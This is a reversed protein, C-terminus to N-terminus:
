SSGSFLPRPFRLLRQAWGTASPSVPPCTLQRVRSEFVTVHSYRSRLTSDALAVHLYSHATKDNMIAAEAIEAIEPKIGCKEIAM